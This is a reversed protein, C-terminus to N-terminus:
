AAAQVDFRRTSFRALHPPLAGDIADVRWCLREKGLVSLPEQRIRAWVWLRDLGDPEQPAMLPLWGHLAM